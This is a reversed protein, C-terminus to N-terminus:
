KFWDAAPAFWYSNMVPTSFTTLRDVVGSEDQGFMRKLLYDFREQECSFAVFYTGQEVTTAYPVSRRWIKMVDDDTRGVHSDPPMKDEDFEVADAKTRGFVREQEAVPLAEFADLQHVWKQTIVFSGAAGPQNDPVLAALRGKDGEPNGIGDVFGSIDRYDHYVFAPLELQVSGLTALRRHATLMADVVLSRNEGQIWLLLDGQTSELGALSFAPFAFGQPLRAWLAPGFALTILLQDNSLALIDKLQALLKGADAHQCIAYEVFQHERCHKDFIGPQCTPM